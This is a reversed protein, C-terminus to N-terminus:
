PQHLLAEAAALTAPLEVGRNALIAIAGVGPVFLLEAMFSANNGSHGYARTDADLQWSRLGYGYGEAEVDLMAASGPLRDSGIALAFNALDTASSLLGGAPSMWRPDGPMFDLDHAVSIPRRDSLHGCAAARATTPDATMSALALPESIRERVLEAYERGSAAELLAGILSYGANSYHYEGPAGAARGRALAPLWAGDLEVLTAPEIEGLGSRHQLLADLQPPPLGVQSAFGPIRSADSGLELKGEAILGFALTATVPKSVSGIRFATGAEVKATDGLCRVGLEAHIPPKGPEVLALAVGPVDLEVWESCLSRLLTHVRADADATLTAVCERKRLTDPDEVQAEHPEDAPTAPGCSAILGPAHLCILLTAIACVRRV